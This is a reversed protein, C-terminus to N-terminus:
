RRMAVISADAGSGGRSSWAGVHARPTPARRSHPSSWSASGAPPASRSSRVFGRARAAAGSRRGDPAARVPQQHQEATSVPRAVGGRRRRARASGCARAGRARGRRDVLRGPEVRSVIAEPSSSPPPAARQRPRSRPRRGRAAEREDPRGAVVREGLARHAEAENLLTPPRPASRAPPARARRPDRDDVPVDVVAVARLRDEASSSAHEEDRQVLPREVRARAPRSSCVLRRQVHRQRGADPSSSYRRAKSRRTSGATRAELGLEHEDRGAEVRVHVVRERLHAHGLVAEALEGRAAGRERRADGRHELAAVVECVSGAGRPRRARLSRSRSVRVAPGAAPRELSTIAM